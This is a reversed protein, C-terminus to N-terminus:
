KQTNQISKIDSLHSEIVKLTDSAFTKVDPDQANASAQRFESADKEHDRVMMNVYAKDFAPGSLHQMHDVMAQHKTDLKTPIEVNDKAAVTKLEADAKSHDAVMRSGFQKVDPSSANAQAIKGLEVETMGGQAATCLFDKDSVHKNSAQTTDSSRKPIEQGPATADNPNKTASAPASDTPATSPNKDLSNNLDKSSNKDLTGNSSSDGTTASNGSKSDDVKTDAPANPTPAQSTQANTLPAFALTLATVGAFALADTKYLLIKM